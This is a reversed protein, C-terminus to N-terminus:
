EVIPITLPFYLVHLSFLLGDFLSLITLHHILGLLALVLLNSVEAVEM